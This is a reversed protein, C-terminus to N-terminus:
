YNKKNVIKLVHFNKFICIEYMFNNYQPILIRVRILLIFAGTNSLRIYFQLTIQHNEFNSCFICIQYNNEFDCECPSIETIRELWFKESIAM